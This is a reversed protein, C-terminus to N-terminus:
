GKAYFRNSFRLVFSVWGTSAMTCFVVVLAILLLVGKQPAM